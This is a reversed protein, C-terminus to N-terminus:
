LSKVSQRDLARGGASYTRDSHLYGNVTPEPAGTRRFPLTEKFADREDSSLRGWAASYTLHLGLDQGYLPSGSGNLDTPPRGVM